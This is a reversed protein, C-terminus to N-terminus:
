AILPPAPPTAALMNRVSNPLGKFDPVFGSDGYTASGHAQSQNWWHRILMLTAGDVGAPTGAAHGATYTFDYIGHMWTSSEVLGALPTRVTLTAVDVATACNDAGEVAIVEILPVNALMVRRGNVHRRETYSRASAQIEQLIRASAWGITRDLLADDASGTIRLFAKADAFSVLRPATTPDFVDFVDVDVGANSGTATWVYVYHGATSIGTTLDVHYAGTSDKAIDAPYTLTSTTGDPATVTVSLGGPDALVGASNRVTTSLRVPQGLPYLDSM